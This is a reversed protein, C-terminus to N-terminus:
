LFFNIMNLLLASYLTMYTCYCCELSKLFFDWALAHAIVGYTCGYIADNYIQLAGDAYSNEFM